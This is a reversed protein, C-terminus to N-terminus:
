AFSAGPVRALCWRAAGSAVGDVCPDCWCSRSAGRHRETDRRRAHRGRWTRSPQLVPGQAIAVSGPWSACRVGRLHARPRLRRVPSADSQCTRSGSALRSAEAPRHPRDCRPHVRTVSGERFPGWASPALVASVAQLSRQVRPTDAAEVVTDCSRLGSRTSPQEARPLVDRRLAVSRPQAGALAFGYGM